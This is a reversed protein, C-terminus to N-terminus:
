LNFFIRIDNKDEEFGCLESLRLISHTTTYAHNLYVEAKYSFIRRIDNKVIRAPRGALMICDKDKEYVIM